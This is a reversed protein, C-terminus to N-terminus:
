SNFITSGIRVMTSGNAVAIKYDQSMGMSMEEIRINETLPLNQLKNFLLKVKEFEANIQDKDDTFTAMAMLGRIEVNKLDGIQPDELIALIEDETLGYKSDESAIKLQLLCPIVRNEQKARKNIERLLRASDIAHIYHIYPAIFRVKNRQLHGIFHWRIDDPLDDKRDDLDQVKNEGFDRQGAEYAELVEENTHYKSVAILKVNEGIQSKLKKLNDAIKM